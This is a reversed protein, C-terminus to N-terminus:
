YILLLVNSRTQLRLKMDEKCYTPKQCRPLWKFGKQLLVKRVASTSVKVGKEEALAAQLETSTCVTTKRLKLLKSVVFKQIPATLKWRKRGCNDYKYQSRGKQKSFRLYARRVTDATSPEGSLNVVKAAIKNWGMGRDARWHYVRRETEFDLGRPHRMEMVLPM